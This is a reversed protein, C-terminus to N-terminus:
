LSASRTARVKEGELVRAEVQKLVSGQPVVFDGEVRSFLRFSLEDPRTSTGSKVPVDIIATESGRQLTATLRFRGKFERDRAGGKHALLARYHYKGSGEGPTVQLRSIEVAPPGGDSGAINEFMALEARLQINETELAKVQAALREQATSEIKLRSGSSDALKRAEVLEAELDLLKQRLLSLEQESVEQHFGSFRRGADYIWGALAISVGALVVVSAARWYWPHDTRVTVRPASIGFRQRLRRIILAARSASEPGRM